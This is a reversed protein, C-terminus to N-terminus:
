MASFDGLIDTKIGAQGDDRTKLLLDGTAIELYIDAEDDAPSDSPVADFAIENDAVQAKISAYGANTTLIDNAVTTDVATVDATVTLDVTVLDCDLTLGSASELTTMTVHSTGNDYGLIESTGTWWIYNAVALDVNGDDDAVLSLDTDLGTLHSSIASYTALDIKGTVPFQLIEPYIDPWATWTVTLVPPNTESTSDFYVFETNFQTSQVANIEQESRVGLCITGTQLKANIAVLGAANLTITNYGSTNWGVTDFQGLDAALMKSYDSNQLPFGCDTDVTYMVFDDDPSATKGYLKLTVGSIYADAPIESLDYWLATRYVSFTSFGQSQGVLYASDNTGFVTADTASLVDAYVPGNKYLYGAELLTAEVSPM